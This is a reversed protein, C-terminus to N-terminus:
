LVAARGVSSCRGPSAAHYGVEARVHENRDEGASINDSGHGDVARSAAAAEGSRGALVPQLRSRAASQALYTGFNLARFHWALRGDSRSAEALAALVAAPDERGVNRFGLWLPTGVEPLHSYSSRAV